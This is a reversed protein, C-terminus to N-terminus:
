SGPTAVPTPLAFAQMPPTYYGFARSLVVLTRIDNENGTGSESIYRETVDRVYQPINPVGLPQLRVLAEQLDGDVQYGSAVMVTYDDTFRPLMASLPSEVYQVPAVNWGIFLGIALGVGLGILISLLLRAM